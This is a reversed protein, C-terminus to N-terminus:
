LTEACSTARRAACAAARDGVIQVGDARQARAPDRLLRDGDREVAYQAMGRKRVRDDGCDVVVPVAIGRAGTRAIDHARERPM